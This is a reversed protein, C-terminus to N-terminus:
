KTKLGKYKLPTVPIPEKSPTKLRNKVYPLMKTRTPTPISKFILFLNVKSTNNNKNNISPTM